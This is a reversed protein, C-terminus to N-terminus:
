RMLKPAGFLLGLNLGFNWNGSPATLYNGYVSLSAFPFNYVVALEGIFEPHNFWKGYTAPATGNNVLDRIPTFCYFDGRVQLNRLPIFIPIVGAAVYNDSRYGVNFYNETAPTPAFAPAHILTATYNERLSQLTGYGTALAGLSFKKGLPFFQRWYLELAARPRDIFGFEAVKNGEPLYRSREYSFMVDAKWDIGNSPYMDNNLTNSSVGGHFVGARYETRDKERNAYDENSTPFYSDVTLGGALSVYGKMKRGMAWVYQGKAFYESETIFTPSNAKYFLVESDYYKQRSAVVQLQVFSPISSRLSFKGELMAAYYSQGVWASLSLDLSNLKLTHYGASLYLQSNASSTIWGGISLSWPRKLIAHLELTNNGDEGFDARPILNSITGDTVAKYYANETQELGFKKKKGVGRFLYELYRAEGGKAGTVAVSDFMVVPTSDAFERRRETVEEISRRSHVRKKISDVMALGTNYGIEYITQAKNFSLVGFNTVPVQIKIGESEPLSYDNNQIIMDELQNYIDGQVPKTDARSVSVGIIVDPNFEDHMVDVPFNDYIGGDYLLIGNVKIPRYVLPFSMSARVADGLQGKSFVVKHKAYVNSAVCRYPVFLDNFNEKCQETYPSYIKLFEINMPLPSVLSTPLIQFPLAEDANFNVNVSLWQPTPAPKNYYFTNNQGIVGMSWNLFEPATFFELMREPSWGCSYLSGVIAGMSTGTVYDIPIDNEELAKIVGVHAIGKAGGGSLVLGVSQKKARKTEVEPSSATASGSMGVLTLGMFIAAVKNRVSRNVSNRGM